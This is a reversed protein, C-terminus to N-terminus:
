NWSLNISSGGGPMRGLGAKGEPEGNSYASGNPVPSGNGRQDPATYASGNPVPSGGRQEGGGGGEGGGTEAAAAETAYRAERAADLRAKHPNAEEAARSSFYDSTSGVPAASYYDDDKGQAAAAATAAAPANADAHAHGGTPQKRGGGTNVPAAFETDVGGQQEQLRRIKEERSPQNKMRENYAALNAADRADLAAARDVATGM